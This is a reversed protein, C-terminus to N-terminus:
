HSLKFEKCNELSLIKVQYNDLCWAAVYKDSLSWNAKNIVSEHKLKFEKNEKFSLISM